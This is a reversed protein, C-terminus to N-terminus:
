ILVKRKAIGTETAPLEVRFTSGEGMTSDVSVTGGMLDVYGKVIALGLGAHLGDSHRSPDARYFREFLHGRAEPTIGIGTDRVELRLTGNDRVVTLDVEGEPRNYEIANHLLNTIVERLKAPDAHLLPSGESHLRLTLGRAEALPRVLATCQEALHRVDVEELRLRDV